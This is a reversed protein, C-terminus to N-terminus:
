PKGWSFESWGAFTARAQKKLLRVEGNHINLLVLRNEESLQDSGLGFVLFQSDPSWILRRTELNETPSMNEPIPCMDVAIDTESDYILIENKALEPHEGAMTSVTALFRGNPSWSLGYARNDSVNPRVPRLRTGDRDLVYLRTRDVPEGLRGDTFAVNQSNPSWAVTALTVSQTMPSVDYNNQYWLEMHHTLDWLVLSLSIADSGKVYLARTQDPSIAVGSGPYRNPLDEIFDQKWEGTFPDLIAVFDLNDDRISVLMLENNIWAVVGWPYNKSSNLPTPFSSIEQSVIRGDVSLLNVHSPANPSTARALYAFWQGNPSLGILDWSDILTLDLLLNSSLSQGNLAFLQLDDKVILTGLLGAPEVLFSQPDNTVCPVLSGVGVESTMQATVTATQNQTTVPKLTAPQLTAADGTTRIATSISTSVCGQALFTLGCILLAVQHSRVLILEKILTKTLIRLM